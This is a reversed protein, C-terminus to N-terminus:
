DKRKEYFYTTNSETDDYSYIECFRNEIFFGAMAFDGICMTSHVFLTIALSSSIPGSLFHNAAIVLSSIIIFPGFAVPLFRNRGIVYKDATVYFMYLDPRLGFKINRAGALFYIMAHIIEHVPILLVPWLIFGSFIQNLIIRWGWEDSSVFQLFGSVMFLFSAIISLYFIITIINQKRINEFVFSVVDNLDLVKLLRFNKENQLDKVTYNMTNIESCFCSHKVNLLSILFQFYHTFVHHLIFLVSPILVPIGTLLHIIEDHKPKKM